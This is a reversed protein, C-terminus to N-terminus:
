ACLMIEELAMCCVRRTVRRGMTLIEDGPSGAESRNAKDIAQAAGQSTEHPCCYGEPAPLWVMEMLSMARSAM